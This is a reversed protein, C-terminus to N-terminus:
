RANFDVRWVDLKYKAIAASVWEIIYRLAQRNGLDMVTTETPDDPQFLLPFM